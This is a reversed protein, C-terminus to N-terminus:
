STRSFIKWEKRNTQNYMNIFVLQFYSKPTQYHLEPEKVFM